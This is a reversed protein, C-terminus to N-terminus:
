CVRRVELLQLATTHEPSTAAGRPSSASTSGPTLRSLVENREKHRALLSLSALTAAQALLEGDKQQLQAAAAAATPLHPQAQAQGQLQGQHM